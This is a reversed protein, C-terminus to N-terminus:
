KIRCLYYLWSDENSELQTRDEIEDGTVLSFVQIDTFLEELQEVQATPRIYYSILKCQHAEDYLRAYSSNRITELRVKRNYLFRLLLRKVTRRLRRPNLSIMRRLEFLNLASNLNHTSFAFTGGPKGVRRIEKFIKERDERSVSDIGNFSFLIFDFSNTEFMEMARADCTKFSVSDPHESFRQECAAVMSESYDTGVYERVEKAFHITTRGGGVGIDLMRSTPLFPLMQRFITKEPPQLDSEQAYGEAVDALGYLTENSDM